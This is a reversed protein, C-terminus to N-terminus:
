CEVRTEDLLSGLDFALLPIDFSGSRRVVCDFEVYAFLKEGFEFLLVFCFFSFSKLLSLFVLM